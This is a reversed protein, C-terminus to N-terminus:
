KNELPASVKVIFQSDESFYSDVGELHVDGSKILSIRHFSNEAVDCDVCGCSSDPHLKVLMGVRLKM